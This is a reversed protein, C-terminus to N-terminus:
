KVRDGEKVGRNKQDHRVVLILKNGEIKVEEFKLPQNLRHELSKLTAELKVANRADREADKLKKANGGVAGWAGVGASQLNADAQANLSNLTAIQSRTGQALAHIGEVDGESQMKKIQSGSLGLKILKAVDAKVQASQDRNATAQKIQDLISLPRTTDTEEGTEPDVTKVTRAASYDAGFISTGFRQFGEAFSARDSLLNKVRDGTKKVHDTVKALVKELPRMGRNIGRVLGEMIAIGAPTLLTRDKSIPGKHDKIWGAMGSVKSTIKDWIKIIGDYFGQMVAQGAGSLLTGLGSLAGSIKGPLGKVFGVVKAVGSRVAGTIQSWHRAILVVALGFPGGLLTGLLAQWHSRVFGIVASIGGVIVSKVRNWHRAIQVAAYFIPGLLITGILVWHSKVFRVVALVAQGFAKLANGMKDVISRFKASHTYAYVLGAALAAIAIVIIGIPNAGVAINLLLQAAAWAKTALSIAFLATKLVAFVGVFTLVTARNNALFNLVATLVPLLANVGGLLGRVAVGLAVFAVKVVTIADGKFTSALRSLAPVLGSMVQNGISMLVPLLLKSASVIQTLANAAVSKVRDFAPTLQARVIGSVRGITPVVTGLMFMALKTVVPLLRYGIAEKTEDYMVNLRGWQGAATGAAVAAQGRYTDSLSKMAQRLSLTHGKADKTKAGLRSLGGLSGLQAKALAGTVTTLSKGTGASVNEALSALRRAKSVSHTVAVLRGLAPRLDDDTVGYAKGQATIWDETAAVQEKTAGASNHMQRALVATAREDDIARKGADKLFHGLDRAGQLMAGGTFVGAAIKGFGRLHSQTRQAENGVGKIARGASRDEGLLLMKLTATATM